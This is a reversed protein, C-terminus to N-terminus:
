ETTVPQREYRRMRKRQHNRARTPAASPLPVTKWTHGDPRIVTLSRQDDLEIRWGGHHVREHHVTCLPILNHLDTPGGHDWEIIHHMECHDFRVDCLACTEYMVRLAARQADTATRYARGVALARGSPGLVTHTIWSDCLYRRLESLPIDNGAGTRKTTGAWVGDSITDLDAVVHISARGKAGNASDILACLATANLREGHHVSEGADSHQKAISRAEADIANQVKEGSLADLDLRAQWRGEADTWSRFSNKDSQSQQETQGDDSIRDTLSRLWTSFQKPNMRAANRTIQHDRADFDTQWEPNHRLRHRASAVCDLSATPIVGAAFGNALRPLAPALQARRQVRRAQSTSQKGATSFVDEASLGGLESLRVAAAAGVGDLRRIVRENARVLDIIEDESLSDVSARDLLDAHARLCGSVSPASSTEHAASNM